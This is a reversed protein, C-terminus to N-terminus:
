RVGSAMTKLKVSAVASDKVAAAVGRGLHAVELAEEGVAVLEGGGLGEVEEGLGAVELTHQRQPALMPRYTAEVGLNINRPRVTQIAAILNDVFRTTTKHANKSKPGHADACVDPLTVTM